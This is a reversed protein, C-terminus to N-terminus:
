LLKPEGKVLNVLPLPFELLLLEFLRVPESFAMVSFALLYKFNDFNLLGLNPFPLLSILNRRIIDEESYIYARM